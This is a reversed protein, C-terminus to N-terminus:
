LRIQLKELYAIIAEQTLDDTEGHVLDRVVTPREDLLRILEWEPLNLVELSDLLVFLTAHRLEQL